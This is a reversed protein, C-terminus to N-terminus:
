GDSITSGLIKYLTGIWFGRLFVMEGRVMRLTEKEFVIQIGLNSMKRVYTLKKSLGLIHLVGPLTIISGDMLKLKFNGQGIIKSTSEDGLFVDGGDYREYGCFWEGHCTMHFSASSDVLWAEHDVHTSLSYLYV